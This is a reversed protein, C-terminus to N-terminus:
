TAYMLDLVEDIMKKYEDKGGFESVLEIDSGMSRFPELTLLRMDEIDKFGVDAYKDLLAAVVDKAKGSYKDLYNSQRVM